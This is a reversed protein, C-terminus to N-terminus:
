LMWQVVRVRGSSDRQALLRVMEKQEEHYAQAEVSFFNSHLSLYPRVSEYLRPDGVLALQDLSRLPNYQRMAVITDTVAENGIGFLAQLVERPATNVNVPLPHSRAVPLVTVCDILNGGFADRLSERARRDFRARPWGDVALLDGWAYLMRNPCGCPPDRKLYFASERAGDEGADVWDALAHAAVTPTFDGCLTMIDKLIETAPRYSPSPDLALNNLDFHRNEDIVRVRTSIGVPSTVDEVVSWSENTADVALDEDNALRQLAALAADTAARQLRTQALAAETRRALLRAKVQVELCLGAILGLLILVLILMSGQKRETSVPAPAALPLSGPEPSFGLWRRRHGTHHRYKRQQRHEPLVFVLLRTVILVIGGIGYGAAFQLLTPRMRDSKFAALVLFIVSICVAAIGIVLLLSEIKDRWRRRSGSNSRSSRRRRGEDQM